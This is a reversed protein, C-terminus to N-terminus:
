SDPINADGSDFSLGSWAPLALTVPQGAVTLVINQAAADAVRDTRVIALGENGAVSGLSGVPKNGALITAATGDEGRAPLATPATVTAVRRRATGRHQMRSVVEQGVYCGKKFDVGETKDMMIDHPFVDSLAFDAGSEAVGHAIRIADWDALGADLVSGSGYLRWVGAQKPFRKDALAGLPAAGDWGAIVPVDDLTEFTVAARLKYLTLRRIFDAVCDARIDCDYGTEGSKSILFDFLVKGQPTLLASPRAEGTKIADVNATILNQLFHEADAGDVRIIKRDSLVLAPVTPCEPNTPL